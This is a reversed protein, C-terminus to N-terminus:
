TELWTQIQNMTTKVYSINYSNDNKRKSGYLKAIHALSKWSVM